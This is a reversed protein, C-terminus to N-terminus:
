RDRSVSHFDTPKMHERAWALMTAVAARGIGRGHLAPDLVYGVEFSSSGEPERWVGVDGALRGRSDRIVMVPLHEIEANPDDRLVAAAAKQRPIHM